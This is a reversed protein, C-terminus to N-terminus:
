FFGSLPTSSNPYLGIRFIPRGFDRIAKLGLNSRIHLESIQDVMIVTRERMSRSRKNEQEFKKARIMNKGGNARYVSMITNKTDKDTGFIDPRSKVYALTEVESYRCRCAKGAFSVQRDHHGNYASVAQDAL